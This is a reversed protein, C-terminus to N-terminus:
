SGNKGPHTYASGVIVLYWLVCNSPTLWPVISPLNEKEEDKVNSFVVFKCSFTLGSRNFDMLSPFGKFSVPIGSLFGWSFSAMGLIAGLHNFYSLYTLTLVKRLDKMNNDVIM